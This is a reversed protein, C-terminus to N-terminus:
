GAVWFTGRATEEPTWQRPAATADRTSADPQDFELRRPPSLHAQSWDLGVFLITPGKITKDRIAASLRRLTTGIVREDPRTGNEVIIVPRAPDAGAALLQREIEGASRLGMYVAFAQGDAALAQWDLEPDGAATGGTVLTFARIKERLTLPLGISAACAHAATIGPIVEVPIGAAGVAAMEEAARGFVFADGGKLRAVRHGKLAERVLIRNIEDQSTSPGGAQKGVHIRIADRRAYELVGDGVLRDIVLVDAEQLRQQAKLTILEPDGPGCGILTVRGQMLRDAHGAITADAAQHAGADDGALIRERFPGSLLREWVRRREVPETVDRAIRARLGRAAEAVRGYQRPLWAELRSKIERALVPATGETGIAITVPDRDVIAPMIFSSDAPADVVNVPIARHRAAEAICANYGADDGAVYVLATGNLDAVEFDRRALTIRNKGALDEVEANVETAVVLIAAPRRTLLRLKQAAKEGGGTVLV